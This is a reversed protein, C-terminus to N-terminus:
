EATASTDTLKLIRDLRRIDVVIGGQLPLSQGFNTTGGGRLTMPTEHQVALAVVTRLQGVDAPTVVADAVIGGGSEQKREEFHESLIPSLWSNDKLYKAVIEPDRVVAAAGIEAELSRLLAM